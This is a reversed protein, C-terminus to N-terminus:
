NQLVVVRYFKNTSTLGDVFNIQFASFGPAINTLTVWNTPSLSDTSQLLYRFGPQVPFSFNFVGAGPSPPPFQPANALSPPPVVLLQAVASNTGGAINTIAVTYSGSDNTQVSTINLSSSTAGSVTSGSGTVGNVLNSGGKKWQFTPAPAGGATVSLVVNTGVLAIKSQPQNTIGPPSNGAVITISSSRTDSMTGACNAGNWIRLTFNFTGAQTPIGAVAVFSLAKNTLYLGPAVQYSSLCATQPGQFNDLLQWSQVEGAHSGSYSVAGGYPVGTTATAPSIIIGSASSITHYGFLATAGAGLRFVVAWASSAAGQAFVPLASRLLPMVQLLLALLLSFINASQFKM